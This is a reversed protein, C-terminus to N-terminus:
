EASEKENAGANSVHLIFGRVALKREKAAALMATQIGDLGSEAFAIVGPGAGSLVAAAAGALKAAQIIDEVGPLHAMRYPQHLRDQMAEALLRYDANRLADAVLLAKGMNFVADRHDINEPLLSRSEGTSLHTEPVIVCVQMQPLEYRRWLVRGEEASLIVLGGVFAAVANDAHVELPLCLQILNQRSYSNGIAANAAILGGVAAAASSGMGSSVPIRNTCEISFRAGSDGAKQFVQSAAQAVRNRGDKPLTRAGEGEIAVRVNGEASELIVDNWLDLALAMCDFGPGLNASTAPVQIHARQIRLTM